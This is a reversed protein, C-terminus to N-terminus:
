HFSLVAYCGEMDYCFHELEAEEDSEDDSYSIMSLINKGEIKKLLEEKQKEMEEQTRMEIETEHEKRWDIWDSYRDYNFGKEKRIVDAIDYYISYYCCEEFYDLAQKASIHNKPNMIDDIIRSRYKMPIRNMENTNNFAVIFSSSSSNTVFGVRVKM